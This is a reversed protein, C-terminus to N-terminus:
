PIAGWQLVDPTVDPRTYRALDTSIVGLAGRERVARTWLGGVAANGLVVAGKVDKGEFDSAAGAGVDVLPVVVGGPATSFSNICLAVRDQERSLVVQRRDGEISLTARLQEWGQGSNEYSDIRLTGGVRRVQRVRRM